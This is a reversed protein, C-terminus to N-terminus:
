DLVTRIHSRGCIHWLSHCKSRQRLSKWARVIATMYKLNRASIWKM